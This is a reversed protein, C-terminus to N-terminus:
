FARTTSSRSRGNQQQHPHHVFRTKSEAARLLCHSSLRTWLSPESVDHLWGATAVRSVIEHPVSSPLSPSSSVGICLECRAAYVITTRRILVVVGYFRLLLVLLIKHDDAKLSPSRTEMHRTVVFPACAQLGRGMNVSYVGAAHMVFVVTKECVCIM